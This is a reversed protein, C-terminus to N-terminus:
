DRLSASSTLRSSMVYRAELDCSGSMAFKFSFTTCNVALLASEGGGACYSQSSHSFRKM